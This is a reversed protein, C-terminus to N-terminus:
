TSSYRYPYSGIEVWEHIIDDDFYSRKSYRWKDIVNDLVDVYVADNNSWMNWIMFWWLM